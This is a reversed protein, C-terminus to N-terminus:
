PEVPKPPKIPSGPKLVGNEITANRVNEWKRIHNVHGWVDSFYIPGYAFPGVFYVNKLYVDNDGGVDPHLRLGYPGGWFMCDQIDITGTWNDAVFMGATASTNSMRISTNRVKITGRSGPSYAQIGDAHDAGQGFAQVWCNTVNFYGPGCVHFGERSDCRCYDWNNNGWGTSAADGSAPGRISKHSASQGTQLNYSSTTETMNTFMPDDFSMPITGVSPPASPMPDPPVAADKAVLTVTGSYNVVSGSQARAAFPLTMAGTM